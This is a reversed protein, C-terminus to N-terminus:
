CMGWSLCALSLIEPTKRGVVSYPPAWPVTQTETERYDTQISKTFTSPKVPQEQMELKKKIGQDFCVDDPTSFM